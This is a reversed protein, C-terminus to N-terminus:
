DLSLAMDALVDPSFSNGALAVRLCVGAANKAGGLRSWLWLDYVFHLLQPDSGYGLVPSLLKAIFSAKLSHRSETADDEEEEGSSADEDDGGQKNKKKYKKTDLEQARRCIEAATRDRDEPGGHASAQRNVRRVDSSRIFTECMDTTWYLHPWVANEIGVWELFNAPLRRQDKSANEGAEKLFEQHMAYFKVYSNKDPVSKLYKLAAKGKRKQEEPLSRLREKVSIPQWRFRVMDEHIRYGATARTAAGCDVELPRLAEIIGVDLNQLEAPIDSWQPAPYGVGTLCHKCRKTGPLQRNNANIDAPELIRTEMRHCAACMFWSNTKAWHLFNQSCESMWDAEKEGFVGPFKRDRRRSEAASKKEYDHVQTPPPPSFVSARDQLGAPRKRVALKKDAKEAVEDGLVRRVIAKAPELADPNNEKLGKLAKTIEEPKKAHLAALQEDNCFMCHEHGGRWARAQPVTRSFICPEFMGRGICYQSPLRAEKKRGEKQEPEVDVLAAPRKRSGAKAKAAARCAPKPCYRALACTCPHRPLPELILNDKSPYRALAHLPPDWCSM